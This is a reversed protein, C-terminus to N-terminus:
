RKFQISKRCEHYNRKDHDKYTSESTVPQFSNFLVLTPFFSHNMLQIIYIYWFENQEDQIHIWQVLKTGNTLQAENSLMDERDNPSNWDLILSSFSVITSIALFSNM